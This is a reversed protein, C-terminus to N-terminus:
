KTAARKRRAPGKAGEAIRRLAAVEVKLDDVAKIADDSRKAIEEGQALLERAVAIVDTAAEIREVRDGLENFSKCADMAAAAAQAEGLKLRGAIGKEIITQFYRAAAEHVAKAGSNIRTM